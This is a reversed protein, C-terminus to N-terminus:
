RGANWSYTGDSHARIWAWPYESNICGLKTVCYEIEQNAWVRYGSKPYGEKWSYNWRVYTPAGRPHWLGDVNTFWAQSQYDWTRKQARNWCWHVSLHFKYLTIKYIVRTMRRHFTVTTRQCGSPTSEGGRQFTTSIIPTGDLTFRQSSVTVFNSETDQTTQANSKTPFMIICSFVIMMAIM